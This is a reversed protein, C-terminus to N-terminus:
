VFNYSVMLRFSLFTILVPPRDEKPFDLLGKVEADPNNFALISLMNPITIAEVANKENAEDPIVLLSM